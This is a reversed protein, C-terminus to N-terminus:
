AAVGRARRQAAIVALDPLDFGFADRFGARGLTTVSVARSDRRREIWRLEFCRRALAAGLSGALHPRRETWDICPRCFVRQSQREAAGLDIGFDRLFAVGSQTVEGADDSLTIQTNAVLADAISVGLRGALHDYCTRGLLLAEDRPTRPRYRPPTMAAVVNIGELMRAVLPSALRYYRHRGQKVVSLLRAETLKALHASATPAGVGAVFALEGATLARGDLLSDLMNARAPDGVLAAVEAMTAPGTITSPETIM